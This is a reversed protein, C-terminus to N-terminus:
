HGLSKENKEIEDVLNKMIEMGENKTHDLIIKQLVSEADRNKGDFNQSFAHLGSKDACIIVEFESGDTRNVGAKDRLIYFSFGSAIQWDSNYTRRIKYYIRGSTEKNYKFGIQTFGDQTQTYDKGTVTKYSLRWLSELGSGVIFIIIILIFFTPGGSYYKNSDVNNDSPCTATKM